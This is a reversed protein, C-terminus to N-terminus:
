KLLVLWDAFFILHSDADSELDHECPCESGVGRFVCCIAGFISVVIVAEREVVTEIRASSLACTATMSTVREVRNVDRLSCACAISFATLQAAM